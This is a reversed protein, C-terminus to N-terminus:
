PLFLKWFVALSIALNFGVMWKVVALDKSLGNFRNEFSAVAEAAARSKGEDVGAAIFADYVESVMLKAM